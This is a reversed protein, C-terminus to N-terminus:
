KDGVKTIKISLINELKRLNKKIINVDENTKFHFTIYNAKVNGAIPKALKQDVSVAPISTINGFDCIIEEIDSLLKLGVEGSLTNLIFVNLIYEKM